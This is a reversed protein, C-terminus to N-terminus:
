SDVNLLVSDHPIEFFLAIDHSVAKKEEMGNTGICVISM